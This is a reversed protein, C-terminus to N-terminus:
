EGCFKIHTLDGKHHAHWTDCNVKANFYSPLGTKRCSPQLMVVKVFCVDLYHMVADPVEKNRFDVFTRKYLNGGSSLGRSFALQSIGGIGGGLELVYVKNHRGYCLTPIM